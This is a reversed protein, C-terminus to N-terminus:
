GPFGGSSQGSRTVALGDSCFSLGFWTWSSGSGVSMVDVSPIQRPSSVLTCVRCSITSPACTWSVTTVPPCVQYTMTRDCSHSPDRQNENIRAKIVWQCNFASFRSTEYFLKHIFDDTRYPKLQLDTCDPLVTISVPRTTVLIFKELVHANVAPM